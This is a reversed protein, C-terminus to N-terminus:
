PVMLGMRVFRHWPSWVALFLFTSFILSAAVLLGSGAIRTPSHDINIRCVPVSISLVLGVVIAPILGMDALWLTIPPLAVGASRAARMMSPYHLGAYISVGCAYSILVGQLVPTYRRGLM